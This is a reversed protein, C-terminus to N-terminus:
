LMQYHHPNHEYNEFLIKFDTTSKENNNKGKILNLDSQGM